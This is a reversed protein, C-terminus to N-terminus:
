PTGGEIVRLHLARRRLERATAREGPGLQRLLRRGRPIYIPRCIGFWHQAIIPYATADFDASASNVVAAEQKKPGSPNDRPFDSGGAVVSNWSVRRPGDPPNRSDQAM